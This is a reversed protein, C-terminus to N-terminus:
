WSSAAPGWCRSSGSRGARSVVRWGVKIYKRDTVKMDIFLGIESVGSESISFMMDQDLREVLGRDAGGGGLQRGQPPTRTARVLLQSLKVGAVKRDPHHDLQIM